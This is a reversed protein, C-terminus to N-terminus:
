RDCALAGGRGCETANDFCYCQEFVPAAGSLCMVAGGDSATEHLFPPNWHAPALTRNLTFGCNASVPSPGDCLLAAGKGRGRGRVFHFGGVRTDDAGLAIRSNDEGDLITAQAYVNRRGGPAAFGGFLEVRPKLVFTSQAYRGQSVRVAM